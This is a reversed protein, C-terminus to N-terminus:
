VEEDPDASAVIVSVKEVDGNMPPNLKTVIVEVYKIRKFQKTLSDCIRRGVHEILKSPTAMQKKVVDYVGVYDITETLDDKQAAKEFDTDIHVDVIYNGGIKTEEKLCGHYAYIKIGEIKIIGM